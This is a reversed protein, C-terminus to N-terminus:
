QRAAGVQYFIYSYMADQQDIVPLGFVKRISHPIFSTNKPTPPILGENMSLVIVNDFDLNRSELIGMVQLGLLPEGEFPLRENQALQRFLKQYAAISLRLSTRSSLNMSGSQANQLFPICVGKDVEDDQETRGFAACHCYSIVQFGQKSRDSLIQFCPIGPIALKKRSVWLM